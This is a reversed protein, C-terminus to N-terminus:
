PLIELLVLGRAGNSSLLHTLNHHLRGAQKELRSPQGVLLRIGKVSRSLDGWDGPGCIPTSCKITGSKNTDFINNNRPIRVFTAVM